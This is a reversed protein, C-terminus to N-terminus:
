GGEYTRSSCKVQKFIGDIQVIVVVVTSYQGSLFKKAKVLGNRWHVEQGAEM